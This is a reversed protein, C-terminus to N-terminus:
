TVTETTTAELWAQFMLVDWLLYGWEHTGALHQSWMKGIQEYDFFGEDRIRRADLLSETWDKL